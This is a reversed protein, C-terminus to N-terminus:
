TVIKGADIRWRPLSDRRIKVDAEKPATMVVQGTDETEMLDLIRESRGEDLEAFVDDLLVL